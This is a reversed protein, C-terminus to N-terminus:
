SVDVQDWEFRVTFTRQEGNSGTTPQIVQLLDGAKMELGTGLDYNDRSRWLNAQGGYTGVTTLLAPVAFSAFPVPTGVSAGSSGLYANLQSATSSSQYNIVAGNTSATFATGYTAKQIVLLPSATTAAITGTISWSVDISRLVARHTAATTMALVLHTTNTAATSLVHMSSQYAHRGTRTYGPSPVVHHEHVTDSGVVKTQTRNKKGTNATDAPLQVYSAVPAAM